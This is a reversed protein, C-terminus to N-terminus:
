AVGPEARKPVVTARGGRHRQSPAAHRDVPYRGEAGAARGGILTAHVAGAAPVAVDARVLHRRRADTAHGRLGDARM